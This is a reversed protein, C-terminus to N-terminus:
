GVAMTDVAVSDICCYDAAVTEEAAADSKKALYL